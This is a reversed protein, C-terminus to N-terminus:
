TEEGEANLERTIERARQGARERAAWTMARALTRRHQAAPAHGREIAITFWAHAVVSDPEVGVGDAYFVGLIMAAQPLGQRAARDVWRFGQEPDPAALGKGERLRAGLHLQAEAHGANAARLLWQNAKADDLAAGEGRAYAIGVQYAVDLNGQQAAHQNWRLAKQSVSNRTSTSCIVWSSTAPIIPTATPVILLRM